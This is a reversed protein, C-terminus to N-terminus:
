IPEAVVTAPSDAWLWQSWVSSDAFLEVEWVSGQAHRFGEIADIDPMNLSWTRYVAVPGRNQLRWRGTGLEGTLNLPVGPAIDIDM